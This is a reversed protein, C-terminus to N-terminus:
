ANKLEFVHLWPGWRSGPDMVKPRNEAPTRYFCSWAGGARGAHFPRGVAGCNAVFTSAHQSRVLAKARDDLDELGPSMAPVLFVDAGAARLLPELGQHFFGCCVAVAVRGLACDCFELTSGAQICEVGGRDTIGLIDKLGPNDRVNEPTLNYEALKDHRWLLEGRYDLVESRNFWPGGAGERVHWSGAVVLLLGRTDTCQQDRLFQRICELSSSPVRLEPLVLVAVGEKHCRELVETLVQLQSAENSIADLVFRAPEDAPFGPEAHGKLEADPNLPSMGIRLSGKALRQHLRQDLLVPVPVRVLRRGEVEAPTIRLLPHYGSLMESIRQSTRPRDQAISVRSALGDLIKPAVLYRGGGFEPSCRVPAHAYRAAARLKEEVFRSLATLLAAASVVTEQLGGTGLLRKLEDMGSPPLSWELSRRRRLLDCFQRWLSAYLGAGRRDPLRANRLTLFNHRCLEYCNVLMVLLDGNALLAQPLGALNEAATLERAYIVDRM